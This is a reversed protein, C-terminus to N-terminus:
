ILRIDHRLMAPNLWFQDNEFRRFVDPPLASQRDARSISKRITHLGPTGSRTDFESADFQLNNFDHKFPREGLFDYLQAIVAEPNATLTEYQVLILRGAAFKSYYAQKLANYAYGVMGDGGAVGDARSYVTGGALYHFISSPQFVNKQVLQEISDVVWSVHRVCAIIKGEPYLKELLAMRACWSRSTDFVVKDSQDAYYADIVSKLIRERQDDDIFVSFENKGSMGELLNGILGAVPGSMHAKFRPNQTLIASLLTSGSRPLGSIFHINKM